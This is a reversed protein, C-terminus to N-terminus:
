PAANSSIYFATQKSIYSRKLKASVDFTHSLTTSYDCKLFTVHLFFKKKLLLTPRLLSLSLFNKMSM